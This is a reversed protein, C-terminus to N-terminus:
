GAPSRAVTRSSSRKSCGIGRLLLVCTSAHCRPWTAALPQLHALRARGDRSIPPCSTSLCFMIIDGSDAIEHTAYCKGLVQKFPIHLLHHSGDHRPNPTALM